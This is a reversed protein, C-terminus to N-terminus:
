TRRYRGIEPLKINDRAARRKIQETIYGKDIRFTEAIEEYTVGRSKLWVAYDLHKLFYARKSMRM